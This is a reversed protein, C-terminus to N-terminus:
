SYRCVFPRLCTLNTVIIGIVPLSYKSQKFLKKYSLKEHSQRDLKKDSRQNIRTKFSHYM